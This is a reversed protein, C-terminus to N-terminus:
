NINHGKVGGIGGPPVPCMGALVDCMASLPYCNNTVEGRRSQIMIIISPLYLRHPTETFFTVEQLGCTAMKAFCAHNSDTIM